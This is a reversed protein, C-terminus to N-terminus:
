RTAPQKAAAVRPKNCGETPKGIERLRTNKLTCTTTEILQSQKIHLLCLRLRGLAKRKLKIYSTPTRVKSYTKINSRKFESRRTRKIPSRSLPDLSSQSNIM